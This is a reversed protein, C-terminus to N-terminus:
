AGPYRTLLDNGPLHPEGRFNVANAFRTVCTEFRKDCGDRLEVRCGPEVDARPVDRVRIAAGEVGLVVTDLGCNAGSLYRLRGFLKRDGAAADLVLANGSSSMVHALQTRGALDIRCHKDGFRARCEPSASPCVPEALRASAGRLEASFSEGGLSVDGLEGGMLDIGDVAADSWDFATLRVKAGDWRGLELDTETLAESSVAGAVEGSSPELGLKREIAAPMIGPDAAYSVGGRVIRQDHSTMAIGAGDGREIRWCFALATLAANASTAM